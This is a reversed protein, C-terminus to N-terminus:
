SARWRPSRVTRSTSRTRWRGAQDRRRRDRGGALVGRGGHGRGVRQGCWSRRARGRVPRGARRGTGSGSSASPSTSSRTRAAPTQAVSRLSAAAARREGGARAATRAHQAVLDDRLDDHGARRRGGDARAHRDRGVDALARAGGAPAAGGVEAGLEPREADVEVAAHGVYRRTGRAATSAPCRSRSGRRGRRGRRRAARAARRSRRPGGPSRAAGRRRAASRRPRRSPAGARRPRRAREAGARDDDDVAVLLAEACARASPASTV